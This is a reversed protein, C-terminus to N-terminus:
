LQKIGAEVILEQVKGPHEERCELGSDRFWMANLKDSGVPAWAPMAAGDNDAGNPDGSRIFDTLYNCMQRALDYHYGKFPRWCKALTEFWFWLDSSHFTGPDDWGPISPDFVGYYLPEPIGLTQKQQALTLAATEVVCVTSAKVMEETDSGGAACAATFEGAKEGFFEKAKADFEEATKAPMGMRFESSTRTVLLPMHHYRGNLINITSNGVQFKGDESTAFTFAFPKEFENCKDRIYEADLKRAEALTKVGLFDFFAVGNAEDQSFPHPNRIPIPYVGATIGSMIVAKQFLGETQPSTLQACVSGGGASQGGITINNPDGGFQAINEKAWRIGAQQDLHGFNSPADPQQATREPHALFGFVTLRYNVTVVVIGRRAIREGDFEMETTNGERLGGGFFWVFVPLREEATKAPTWVNLYLCDESMPITPDVNWERSYINKLDLGPIHQMSIPAFTFCKREGEWPIVPQPARWRNEGVPPAAFPIGKFATIRPDAAPIGVVTGGTVNAKRIM